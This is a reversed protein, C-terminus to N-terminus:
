DEEIEEDEDEDEDSVSIHDGKEYEIRNEIHMRQSASEEPSTLNM